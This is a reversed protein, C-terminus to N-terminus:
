LFVGKVEQHLHSGVHIVEEADGGIMVGISPWNTPFMEMQHEAKEDLIDVISIDHLDVCHICADQEFAMVLVFM